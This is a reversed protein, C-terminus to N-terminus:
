RQTLDREGKAKSRNMLYNSWVASAILAVGVALLVSGNIGLAVRGRESGVWSSTWLLASGAAFLVAGAQISNLIRSSIGPEGRAQPEGGLLNRYAESNIFNTLDQGSSMRDILKTTVEAMRTDRRSRQISQSIDMVMYALCIFVIPIIIVEEV